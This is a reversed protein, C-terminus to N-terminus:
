RAAPLGQDRLSADLARPLLSDVREAAAREQALISRALEVTEADGARHAVRRLLEYAAIELHEFAYAFAALKAPTDPQAAFFAGWNLAGLRLGADKLTSPGSGRHELRREVLRAHEETEALHESYASALDPDGALQPSKKLLQVAQEEIAHADALYKNLQEGLDDPALERLAGAAAQDFLNEIREGMAHEQGEIQHAVRAVDADGLKEALRGLLKYAAEEMHEYSYAHAALKGPTDPQAAAFAVFGKGTLTGALDKVVAPKAGRAELGGRVLTEHQETELLHDSFARALDPDDGALKPAAKMQALAQQEISHVDTLYKTLQDDLTETTM